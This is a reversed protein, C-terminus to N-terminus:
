SGAASRHMTTKMPLIFSMMQRLQSWRGRSLLEEEADVAAPRHRRKRGAM